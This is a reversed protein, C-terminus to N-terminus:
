MAASPRRAAAGAAPRYVSGIAAGLLVFEIVGAVWALGTLRRGINLTGYNVSSLYTAVFLGAMLGFRVGEAAGSGRGEYGKSYIATAFLMSVFIGVFMTALYVPPATPPRYVAPFRAFEHTLLMGYVVVGYIADVVTAALAALVLRTYNM